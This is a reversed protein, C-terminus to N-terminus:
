NRLICEVGRLDFNQRLIEGKKSLLLLLLLLFIFM